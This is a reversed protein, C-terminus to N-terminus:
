CRILLYLPPCVCSQSVRSLWFLLGSHHSIGIWLTSYVVLREMLGDFSVVDRNIITKRGATNAGHNGLRSDNVRTPARNSLSVGSLPPTDRKM